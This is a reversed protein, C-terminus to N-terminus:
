LDSLATRRGGLVKYLACLFFLAGGDGAPSETSDIQLYAVLWRVDPNQEANGIFRRLAATGAPGGFVPSM